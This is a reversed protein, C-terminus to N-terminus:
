LYSMCVESNKYVVVRNGKGEQLAKRWFEELFMKKLGCVKLFFVWGVLWFLCVSLFWGFFVWCSVFPEVVNLPFSLGYLHFSASNM